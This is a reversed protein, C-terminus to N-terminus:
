PVTIYTNGCSLGCAPPATINGITAPVWATDTPKKTFATVGATIAIGSADKYEKGSTAPAVPTGLVWIFEPKDGSTALGTHQAPGAISSLVFDCVNSVCTVTKENWSTITGKVTIKSTDWTVSSDLQNLNLSLKVDVDGYKLFTHGPADIAATSGAPVSFTGNGTHGTWVWNGDTAGPAAFAVDILGYEFDIPAGGAANPAVFATIGWIHDGAVADAPEHGGQTYPGDDYLVPWGAMGVTSGPLLGTWSSDKTMIRTTPDVLLSGKWRLQGATYVKNARDDVRFNVAVTGAPQPFPTGGSSSSSSGCAALAAGVALVAMKKMM